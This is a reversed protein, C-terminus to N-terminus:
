SCPTLSAVSGSVAGDGGLLVLSTAGLRTLEARVVNPVCRGPVLLLPASKAAAVVGGALADPFNTGTAVYAIPSGTPFTTRSVQVATAYRDAGAARTVPAVSGLQAEVGSGVAGTGGLIVISRPQLRRLETATQAPVSDRNVLLVPGGKLAGAAAGALADPFGAGTAVYAVAPSSTFASASIAAATAFRDDGAVRTAGNAALGGLQALVADSVVAPGGLVVISSPKLEVLRQRTGAPLVDRGTLLLPAHRAAAAPGGALADAFSAGTAVYVTGGIAAGSSLAAATAYRDAGSMRSYGITATNPVTSTWSGTRRSDKHFQHWGLSGLQAPAPLEWRYAIGTGDTRTGVAVVDLKGNGDVDAVAPSNQFAVRQGEALNFLRAGTRGNFVAILAGTPVFLDQAGDGNVDATVVGGLVAGGGSAQPFGNLDGGTRGDLAYVSGGGDFTGIAVDLRGDGNIDALAPAGATVGNTARRWKLRGTAADVAFVSTNDSAHYYDGAGFVVELKGDGDIDGVAPSSRVIDNIRFEWLSRGTATVARVMGGRFDVPAGPTSDGGVIVEAAGDGNVDALAASSFMTDDWYFLEKGTISAGDSARFSWLSRVMLGGVTAEIDGNGQIDGLAPSTHVPAGNPFDPDTLVRRYRLAGTADFSYLGGNRDNAMGSGVFVEPRGDGNVDAASPSSNIQNSTVQPWGPVNAGDGGSLGYLRHDYAGVVVDLKGDADLDVLAPSSERVTAGPLERTWVLPPPVPAAGAGTAAAVTALLTGALTAALVGATRRRHAPLHPM